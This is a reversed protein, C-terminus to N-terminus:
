CSEVNVYFVVFSLKEVFFLVFFLCCKLTLAIEGDCSMASEIKLTLVNDLFEIVSM